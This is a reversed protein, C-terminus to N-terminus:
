SSLLPSIVQTGCKALLILVETVAKTTTLRNSTAESRACAPCPLHSVKGESICTVLPLSEVVYCEIQLCM